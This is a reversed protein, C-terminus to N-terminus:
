RTWALIEFKRFQKKRLAKEIEKNNNSCMNKFYKEILEAELVFIAERVNKPQKATREWNMICQQLLYEYARQDYLVGFASFERLCQYCFLDGFGKILILPCMLQITLATAAFAKGYLLEVAQASVLVMGGALPFTMFALVQSGKDILRYFNKKDYDYYYSLRPLLAVTVANAMTLVMNVTKQAYSYYGVAENTGMVNLMTVDIKNYISSLFIICASLLVPKIHKQLRIESFDIKVFKRAHVVNFIYNGGTALSSILAYNVYDQRTKVLLLLAALSFGKIFLSRGTIYGYEELGKYM